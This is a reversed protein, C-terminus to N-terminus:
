ETKMQRSVLNEYAYQAMRWGLCKVGASPLTSLIAVSIGNAISIGDDMWLDLSKIQQLTTCVLIAM